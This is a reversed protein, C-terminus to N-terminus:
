LPFASSYPDEDPLSTLTGSGLKSLLEETEAHTLLLDDHRRRDRRNHRWYRLAQILTMLERDTLSTVFM